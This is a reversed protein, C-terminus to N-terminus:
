VGDIEEAEDKVKIFIKKINIKKLEKIMKNFNYIDSNRDIQVVLSEEKSNLFLKIDKIDIEKDEFFFKNEDNITFIKKQQSRENEEGFESIPKVIKNSDKKTIVGTLLFFILLLFILNIMPILNVSNSLDKRKNILKKLNM